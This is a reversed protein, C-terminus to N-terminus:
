GNLQKNEKKNQGEDLFFHNCKCNIESKKLATSLHGDINKKM